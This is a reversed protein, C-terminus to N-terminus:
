VFEMDNERTQSLDGFLDDAMQGRSVHYQRATEMSLNGLNRYGGVITDDKVPLDLKKSRVPRRQQQQSLSADVQGLYPNPAITRRSKSLTPMSAAPPMELHKGMVHGDM